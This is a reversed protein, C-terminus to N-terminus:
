FVNSSDPDSGLAAVTTRIEIEPEDNASAIMTLCKCPKGSWAQRDCGRGDHQAPLRWTKRTTAVDNLRVPTSSEYRPGSGAADAPLFAWVFLTLVVAGLMAIPHDDSGRRLTSLSNRLLHSIRSSQAIERPM